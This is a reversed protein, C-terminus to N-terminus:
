GWSEKLHQLLLESLKTGGVLEVDNVKALEIAERTFSSNTVVMIRNCDYFKKAAVAQQIADNGVTGTYRKAQIVIRQGSMNAVLDGGQDGVRGTKQVAYGMAIFLRYLLNEFESGSIDTFKKPILSISERTLNEEYQQIYHRLILSVDNWKDCSLHMGKENLVKRFDKLREWDFSHERYTWDNKKGKQAGFRVIFNKVYNELDNQKLCDLLNNTKKERIRRQLKKWVFVGALVVVLFIVFYWFQRWFVARDSFYLFALYIFYLVTLYFAIEWISNSDERRRRRAM